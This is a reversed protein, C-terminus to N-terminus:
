KPRDLTQVSSWGFEVRFDEFCKECVWHYDDATVYGRDVADADESALPVSIHRQCLDCHDHDWGERYPQWVKLTLSRGQLYTEQGILRWDDV